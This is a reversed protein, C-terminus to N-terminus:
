RRAIRRLRMGAVPTVGLLLATVALGPSVGGVSGSLLSTGAPSSGPLDVELVDLGRVLDVAYVLNTSRGTAIGQPNREPVWYTDWVESVGTTFYGYQKLNTPDRVDILRVGGQYFGQVVIGSRHHDFWHASCFAMRPLSVGTGASVPNIRDLPRIADPAGDLREVHWTQFSGATACETNEYDEETVLLVNGADVDPPTQPTFSEANPRASNHHIFDNWPTATGHEDTTTVLQPGTPDSVDFVASGGSGTHIGYGAGDFNWKHGAGDSFVPNPGAAPSPFPQTGATAPDSDVERPNDLDRLEVVSFSGATGATYAYDCATQEICAVTHTSTTTPVVSRIHPNSPDTIDVVAVEKTTGVHSPESGGVGFLDYGVLVFREVRDGVRREGYNIAENEFHALPLTGTLRPARPDSVDYVSIGKTTSLIFLPASKAFVGSIGLADPVTTVLRVNSSSAIPIDAGSALKERQAERQQSRDESPGHAAAPAATAVAFGMALTATLAVFPRARM